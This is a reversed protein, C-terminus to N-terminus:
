FRPKKEPNKRNQKGVECTSVVVFLGGRTTKKKKLNSFKFNVILIVQVFIALVCCVISIYILRKRIEKALVEDIGKENERIKHHNNNNETKTGRL